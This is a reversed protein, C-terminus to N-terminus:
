GVPSVEFSAVVGKDELHRSWASRVLEVSAELNSRQGSVVTATISLSVTPGEPEEKSDTSAEFEVKKKSGEGDDDAEDTEIAALRSKVLEDFQRHTMLEDRAQVLLATRLQGDKIAAASRHLSWSVGSVREDMPISEAVWRMQSISDYGIGTMDIAQAAKEAYFQEGAVLWDGLWWNANRGVRFLTTGIEEWQEYEPVVDFLLGMEQLSYVDDTAIASATTPEIHQDTM